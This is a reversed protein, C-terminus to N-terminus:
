VVTWTRYSELGLISVTSQSIKSKGIVVRRRSWPGSFQPDVTGLRNDGNADFFSGFIDFAGEVGNGVEEGPEM